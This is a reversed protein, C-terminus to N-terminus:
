EGEEGESARQQGREVHSPGEGAVALQVEVGLDVGSGPLLLLV